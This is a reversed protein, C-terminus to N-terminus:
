GKARFDGPVAEFLGIIRRRQNPHNCVNKRRFRWNEIVQKYHTDRADVSELADAVADALTHQFNGLLMVVYTSIRDRALENPRGWSIGKM